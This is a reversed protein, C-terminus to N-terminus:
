RECGTRRGRRPSIASPASVQATGGQQRFRRVLEATDLRAYWVELDGLEAFNRTAERYGRTASM